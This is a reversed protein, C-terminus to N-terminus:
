HEARIANIHRNQAIARILFAMTGFRLAALSALAVNPSVAPIFCAKSVATTSTPDGDSVDRRVAQTETDQRILSCLLDCM